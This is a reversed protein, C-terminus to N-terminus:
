SRAKLESSPLESSPAEAELSRPPTHPRHGRIERRWFFVLLGAILLATLGGGVKMIRWAMVVYTQESADYRYCYMLVREVTSISRGESAELLGLRLDQPQHELGYLYRAVRGDPTLLMLVGPHAYQLQRPMWQYRFGLAEALQEAAPYAGFARLLEADSVAREAVLFHWGQRAADRGYRRLTRQRREAAIEPTDRPDISITLVTMEVGVTWPQQMLGSIAGDLVMSCFTPCSHYVLNVVVPRTGDVLEDLRVRQGTHDRFVLDLPIRRDLHEDVGVNEIGPPGMQMQAVAPPAASLVGFLAGCTAGVIRATRNM